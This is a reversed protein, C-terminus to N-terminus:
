FKPLNKQTITIWKGEVRHSSDQKFLSTKKTLSINELIVVRKEWKGSPNHKKGQV